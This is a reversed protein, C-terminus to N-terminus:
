RRPAKAAMAVRLFESLEVERYTPYSEVLQKVRRRDDDHWTTEYRHESRLRFAPKSGVVRRKTVELPVSGRSAIAKNLALRPAPSLAGPMIANLRAQCDTFERYRKVIEPSKVILRASYTLHPNTLLLTQSRPNWEESLSPNIVAQRQPPMKNIREQQLAFHRALDIRLVRTYEKKITDIM